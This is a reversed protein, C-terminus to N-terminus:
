LRHLGPRDALCSLVSLCVVEFGIFVLDIRVPLRLPPPQTPGRSAQRSMDRWHTATAAAPEAASRLASPARLGVSQALTESAEEEEEKADDDRRGPAAEDAAAPKAGDTRAALHESLSALLQQQARAMQKIPPTVFETELQALARTLQAARAASMTAVSAAAIGGDGSRSAAHCALVFLVALFRM